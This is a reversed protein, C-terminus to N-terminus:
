IRDDIEIFQQLSQARKVLGDDDNDVAIERAVPDLLGTLNILFIRLAKVETVEVQLCHTVRLALNGPASSALEEFCLRVEHLQLWVGRAHIEITKAALM